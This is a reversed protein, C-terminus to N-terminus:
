RGVLFLSTFCFINAWDIHFSGFAKEKESVLAKEKDGGISELPLIPDNLKARMEQAPSHNPLNTPKEREAIYM